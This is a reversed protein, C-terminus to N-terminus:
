YTLLATNIAMNHNCITTVFTRVSLLSILALTLPKLLHMQPANCSKTGNTCNLFYLFCEHILAVKLLTSPKWVSVQLKVLLLVRGHTNKVNKTCITGFCAVFRMKKSLKTPSSSIPILYDGTSFFYM